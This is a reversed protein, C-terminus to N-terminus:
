TVLPHIPQHTIELAPRSYCGIESLIRLSRKEQGTIGEGAKQVRGVLLGEGCTARSALGSSSHALIFRIEIVQGTQIETNNILLLCHVLIRNVEM